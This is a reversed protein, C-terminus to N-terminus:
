FQLVTALSLHVEEEDSLEYLGIEVICTRLCSKAARRTVKDGKASTRFGEM